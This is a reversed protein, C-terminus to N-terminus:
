GVVASVRGADSPTALTVRFERMTAHSAYEDNTAPAPTLIRSTFEVVNDAESVEPYRADQLPQLDLSIRLGVAAAMTVITRLTANADGSLLRTVIARDVDMKRALESRRMDLTVLREVIQESFSLMLRETEFGVAGRKSEIRKELWTKM